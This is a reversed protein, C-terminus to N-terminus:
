VYRTGGKFLGHTWMVGHGIRTFRWRLSLMPYLGSYDKLTVPQNKPGPGRLENWTIGSTISAAFQEEHAPTHCTPRLKLHFPLHESQDSRGNIVKNIRM